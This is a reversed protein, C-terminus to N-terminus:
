YGFQNEDPNLNGNSNLNRWGIGWNKSDGFFKNILKFKYGFGTMGLAIALVALKKKHNNVWAIVKNGGNKAKAIASDFKGDNYFKAIAILALPAIVVGASIFPHKSISGFKAAPVKPARNRKIFDSAQVNAAFVFLTIALLKFNLKM